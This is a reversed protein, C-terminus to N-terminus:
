PEPTVLVYPYRGPWFPTVVSVATIKLNEVTPENGTVAFAIMHDLCTNGFLCSGYETTNANAIRQHFGFTEEFFPSTFYGDRIMNLYEGRDHIVFSYDITFFQLPFAMRDALTEWDDNVIAQQVAAAFEAGASFGDQFLLPPENAFPNELDDVGGHFESEEGDHSDAYVPASLTGDANVDYMGNLGSLPEGNWIKDGCETFNFAPSPVDHIDCGTFNLGDCQFFQAAGQSCEYIETRRIDLSTCGSAQIGLIGCGYLRMNEIRVDNCNNFNLVGGSCAGPEKTHGATFGILQINECNSFSVVHAFRPIAALTTAKADDSASRIALGRVDRIVLQPGDHSESWSYYEGGSSGYNSATSLDFLTGDLVITRDPGIAKLFEDVNTVAIEGGPRVEAAKEAAVPAVAIDPDIDRLVMENLEAAELPEGSVDLPDFRHDPVWFRFDNAEFRCGDIVAPYQDFLFMSSVIRNDHVDNSLFLTNKSYYSRLLYQSANDHIRCGHIVFGDSYDAAFLMTAEGQNPRIGHSDIDCNEVRINRCQSLAVANYSCEYIRSATVTLNNCNLADIGITGCGYLGSSAINTNRCDELRLVGGSCEGPETTHGATLDSVTLNQCSVFRIVNAYRPVAAITTEGIGAGRLTLNEVNQLVLEFGDYVGNWSYYSSHTDSGYDSATSLDYMGAALEIVSDPAIAALLEDVNTVHIANDEAPVAAAEPGAAKAAPGAAMGCGAVLVFALVASHLRAGSKKYNMIQVLREKLNRKETAFTTAVVGAPLASTAAMSLLTDGYSQKEKRTMSRLLMEDCSLECARNLERRILWSLPNFWHASIVANAFWKYLTDSRRYHMLEHRLINLLCEESYENEPIVIKPLFLGFMVPTRIRDSRFLEPKRGPLSAYLDRTFRDPRRLSHRLRGTFRLYASVTLGLSLIAGITWVALWLGPSHWDFSFSSDAPAAPEQTGATGATESTQDTNQLEAPIVPREAPVPDPFLSDSIQDNRDATYSESYAASDPTKAEGSVPIFGPVPLVFRLLVLLWAYYYVTSPMRRLIFYRLALLLLALVSGSLTLTLLYRM